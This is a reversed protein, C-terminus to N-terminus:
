HPGAAARRVEGIFDDLMEVLGYAPRWNWQERANADDLPLLFRDLLAQRQPDPEFSISAGPLRRTVADALEQASPDPTPGAVLYVVTTISEGPAEQLQVLARAADKVYMIPARTDPRVWARFPRGRASEEIM